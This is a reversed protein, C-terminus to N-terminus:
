VVQVSALACVMHEFYFPLRDCCLLQRQSRARKPAASFFVSVYRAATPSRHFTPERYLLFADDFAWIDTELSGCLSDDDVLMTATLRRAGLWLFVSLLCYFFHRPFGAKRPQSVDGIRSRHQLLPVGDCTRVQLTRRHHTTTHKTTCCPGTARNKNFQVNFKRGEQTLKSLVDSSWVNM